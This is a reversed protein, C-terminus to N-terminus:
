SFLAICDSKGDTPKQYFFYTREGGIIQDAEFFAIDKGSADQMCKGAM